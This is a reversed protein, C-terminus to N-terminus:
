RLQAGATNNTGIDKTGTEGAFFREIWGAVLLEDTDKELSASATAVLEPGLIERRMDLLSRTLPRVHEPHGQLTFINDGLAMMANPCFDSAAVIQAGDPAAVVQDQHSVLLSFRETQPQMWRCPAVVEYDHVGYGWGVAAKEVHGGLAQAIAQHGFCVGLLKEDNDAVRRIFDFLSAFWAIEEYVGHSSGTILYGDCEGKTQPVEGDITSYLRYTFDIDARTFLDAFWQVMPGHEAELEAAVHGTILIGIRM